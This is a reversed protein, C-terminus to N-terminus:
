AGSNQRAREKVEKEAQRVAPEESGERVWERLEPPVYKGSSGPTFELKFSSGDPLSGTILIEKGQWTMLTNLLHEVQARTVKDVDIGSALAHCESHFFQLNKM